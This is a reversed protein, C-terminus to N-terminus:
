TEKKTIAMLKNYKKIGCILPICYKEKELQRVESPLIGELDM